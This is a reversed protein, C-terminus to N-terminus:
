QTIVTIVQGSSGEHTDTEPQPCIYTYKGEGLDQAHEYNNGSDLVLFHSHEGGADPCDPVVIAGMYNEYGYVTTM